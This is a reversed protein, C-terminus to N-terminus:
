MARVRCGGLAIRAGAASRRLVCSVRARCRYKERTLIQRLITAPRSFAQRAPRISPLRGKTTSRSRMAARSASPKVKRSIPSSIPMLAALTQRMKLACWLGSSPSADTLGTPYQWGLRRGTRRSVRRWLPTHSDSSPKVFRGLPCLAPNAAPAGPSTVRGSDLHFPNAPCSGAM